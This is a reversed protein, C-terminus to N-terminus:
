FNELKFMTKSNSLREASFKFSIQKDTCLNKNLHDQSHKAKNIITKIQYDSKWILNSAM